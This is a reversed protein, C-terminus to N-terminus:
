KEKYKMRLRLNKQAKFYNDVNSIKEAVKDIRDVLLIPKIGNNLYINLLLQNSCKKRGFIDFQKKNNKNNKDNSDNKKFNLEYCQAAIM